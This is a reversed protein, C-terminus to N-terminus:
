EGVLGGDRGLQEKDLRGVIEKPVPSGNRRRRFEKFVIM